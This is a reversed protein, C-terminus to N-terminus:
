LKKLVDKGKKTIQYIRYARRKPTLCKVLGKEEMALVARSVSSRHKNIEKSIEVPTKPELLSRLVLTMVKGGKVFSILDWM